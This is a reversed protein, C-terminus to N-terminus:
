LRALVAQAEDALNTRLAAVAAKTDRRTAAASIAEHSAPGTEGDGGVGALARYRRDLESLRSRTQLLVPRATGAVLAFHFADHAQQWILPEAEYSTRRLRHLAGIVGSEWALNGRAVAEGLALCDLETRLSAIDAYEERSVPSVRFGCQDEFLVLGEATLRALAERLPSISTQFRLRLADLNIKDDPLLEARLIAGRLDTCIRSSITEKRPAVRPAVAM